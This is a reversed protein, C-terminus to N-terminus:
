DRGGVFWGLNYALRQVVRLGLFAVRERIALGDERYLAWQWRLDEIIARPTAPPASLGRTADRAGARRRLDALSM